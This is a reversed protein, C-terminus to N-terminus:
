RVDIQRNWIMETIACYCSMLEVIFAYLASCVTSADISGVRVCGSTAASYNM